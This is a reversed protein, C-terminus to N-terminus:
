LWCGNMRKAMSEEMAHFRQFMRHLTPRYAMPLGNEADELILPVRQRLYAFGKPIVIGFEMLLSRIHNSTATHEQIVLERSRQISQMTQQDINKLPAKKINRRNSAEAVAM